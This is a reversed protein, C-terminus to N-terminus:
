SLMAETANHLYFIGTVCLQIIHSTCLYRSVKNMTPESCALLLMTLYTVALVSDFFMMPNLHYQNTNNILAEHRELM